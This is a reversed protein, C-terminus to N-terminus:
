LNVGIEYAREFDRQLARNAVSAEKESGDKKRGVRLIKNYYGLENIYRDRVMSSTQRDDVVQTSKSCRALENSM